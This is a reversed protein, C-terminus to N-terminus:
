AGINARPQWAVFWAGTPDPIVAIRGDGHADFPEGLVMGGLERVQAAISDVYEVSVYSIWKPPTNQDEHLGCIEDGALRLLTYTGAEGNAVDEAEWDFLGGYFTKAGAPDSTALDLWCFTGSEYREREIM